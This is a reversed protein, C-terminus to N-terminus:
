FHGRVLPASAIHGYYEDGLIVLVDREDEGPQELTGTV